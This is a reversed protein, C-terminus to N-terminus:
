ADLHSKLFDPVKVFQNPELKGKVSEGHPPM